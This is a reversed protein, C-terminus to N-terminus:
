SRLKHKKSIASAVVPSLHSSPIGPNSSVLTVGTGAGASM